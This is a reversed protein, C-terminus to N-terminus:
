RAARLRAAAREDAAEYDDAAAAIGRATQAIGAGLAGLQRRAADAALTVADGTDWRPVVPATPAGALDAALRAGCDALGSAGDRVGEADVELDPNM